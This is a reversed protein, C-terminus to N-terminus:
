GLRAIDSLAAANAVTTVHGRITLIKRRKLETFARSVTERTLGLLNAVEQQTLGLVVRGNSAILPLLFRALKQEATGHSGLTQIHDWAHRVEFSLHRAM